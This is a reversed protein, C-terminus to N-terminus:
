EDHGAYNQWRKYDLLKSQGVGLDGCGPISKLLEITPAALAEPLWPSLTIRDICALPIKIPLTKLEKEKSRFIIRFECKDRFPFRKLFPLDVTTPHEASLKNVTAYRVLSARLHRRLPHEDIAALLLDRNFEIRIGSPGSAFVKWHHYTEPAETFCLALLSKLALKKQYQKLFYIDNKDEWVVSPDLLTITQERLVSILVPFSTYRSLYGKKM